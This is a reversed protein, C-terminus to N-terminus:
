HRLSDIFVKAPFLFLAKFIRQFRWPQTLLRYMWEYGSYTFGRITESNPALLTEFSGGVGISLNANIFDKNRNIWKEQHPHGFAVFMIDVGKDGLINNIKIRNEEDFIKKHLVDSTSFVVNLGVYKNTLRDAVDAAINHSGKLPRGFYDRPWGGLFGVTLNNRAAYNCLEDVFWVGTITRFEKKDTWLYRILSMGTLLAKAKYLSDKTYTSISKMYSIAMNIGIGDPLSLDCSNIIDKFEEDSQADIIFEPNTTCIHSPSKETALNAALQVADKMSYGVHIKVGLIRIEETM